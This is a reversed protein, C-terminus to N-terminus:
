LIIERGCYDCTGDIIHGGCECTKLEKKWGYEIKTYGCLVHNIYDNLYDYRNLKEIYNEKNKEKQEFIYDLYKKYNQEYTM